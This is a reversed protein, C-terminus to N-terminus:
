GGGRWGIPGKRKLLHWKESFAKKKEKKKKEKKKKEKKKKKVIDHEFLHVPPRADCQSDKIIRPLGVQTSTFFDMQYLTIWVRRRLEVQLPRINPWHSPDRHLGMRMAIRIVVGILIWNGIHTDLNVNQDIAFYLTLTEITYSNPRLYDGAVLCHITLTRYTELM